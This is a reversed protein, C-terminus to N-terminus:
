RRGGNSPITSKRVILEPQLALYSPEIKNNDLKWKEVHRALAQVAISGLEHQNQFITTLSPCFYEAEPIDDFGVVALEDPVRIGVEFATQLVSLAMQDNGVFIADMQPFSSLLQNFAIKGSKPSWNGNASMYPELNIGADTLADQWGQQRQRSEWWDLPGTIHGIHKRGLGLLHETAMRGGCYNDITVISIDERKETTLFIIPVHIEDIADKIWDRNSGVQPAAWIIGDVQHDLFWALIPKITTTNYSSLEKLLLGYGLEESMATIGSLTTSPGFYKLGATLIGFNYSRRQSLSRAIASPRFELKDIIELVRQRTEGAVDPRNNIVRSVTQRSVGAEKAVEYITPKAPNGM